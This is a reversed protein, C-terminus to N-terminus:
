VAGAVLTAFEPFPTGVGYLIDLYFSEQFHEPSYTLRIPINTYPDVYLVQNGGSMISRSKAPRFAATFADRHFAMGAISHSKTVVVGSDALVSKKLAPEITVSVGSTTLTVGATVVYTTVSDNAFMIHDGAVLTATSSAVELSLTKVGAAADSSVTVTAASATGSTHSPMQQELAWLFGLKQRIEGTALVDYGGYDQNIFVNAGLAADEAPQSILFYRQDKPALSNNLISRAAILSKQVPTTSAGFPNIHTATNFAADSHFNFVNVYQAMIKSNVDELLDATAREIQRPLIDDPNYLKRADNEDMLFKALKWQDISFRYYDFEIADGGVPVPGPVVNGVLGRKPKPITVMDGQNSLIPEYDYNITLLGALNKRLVVSMKSFLTPTLVGINAITPTAM